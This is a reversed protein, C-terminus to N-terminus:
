IEFWFNQHTAYITIIHKKDVLNLGSWLALIFSRISFRHFFGVADNILCSSFGFHNDAVIDSVLVKHKSAVVRSVPRCSYSFFYFTGNEM